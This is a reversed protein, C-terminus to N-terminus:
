TQVNVKKCMVIRPLGGYKLARAVEHYGLELFNARSYRNDPHVTACLYRYGQARLMEEGFALLRRQLGRGRARPRVAVSDMYATLRKDGDSLKLYDGLHEEETEPFHILLFALIEGEEEAKLIMGRNEVHEFIYDRDETVYWEPYKMKKEAQKMIHFIETIDKYDAKIIKM